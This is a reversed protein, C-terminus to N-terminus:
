AVKLIRTNAETAIEAKAQIFIMDKIENVLEDNSLDQIKRDFRETRIQLCTYAGILDNRGLTEITRATGNSLTKHLLKKLNILDGEANVWVVTNLVGDIANMVKTMETNKM